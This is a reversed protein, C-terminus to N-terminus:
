QKLLGAKFAIHQREIHSVRKHLKRAARGQSTYFADEPCKRALKCRM